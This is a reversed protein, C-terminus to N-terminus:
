AFFLYGAFIAAVIGALDTLLGFAVAYRTKTVGAAGFYVAVIYLTTDAAGQMICSIRGPLSDPGYMKMTEVMMSRAGSGSLPKMFATPLSPVFGGDAGMSQVLLLLGNELLKMAGSARFISVAVLMAVLYPIISVATKFGDKAGEVFVEFLNLRARWGALLFAIIISILLGNGVVSTYKEIVERPQGYLLAVLSGVMLTLAGLWGLLVGDPRIRQRFMCLLIGVLTSVYTALLIPMFVDAPNAAGAQARYALISVPILTLSSTNIVLFMIQADSATDKQPNIEQLRQMAKLGSPTAANDLGLMNASFNMLIHGMAADQKPVGPFLRSFFPSTIRAMFGIAGAQEGIRMLGLWLTMVGTLGLAIEFATKAGDFLGTTLEGFVGTEGFVFLRVLAVVFGILFLFLWIYNLLMAGFYFL